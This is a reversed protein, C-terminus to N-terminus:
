EGKHWELGMLGESYLHLYKQHFKLDKQGHLTALVYKLYFQGDSM